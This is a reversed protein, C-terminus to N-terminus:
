PSVGARHATFLPQLAPAIGRRSLHGYKVSSPKYASENKLLFLERHRSSNKEKQWFCPFRMFKTFNVLM